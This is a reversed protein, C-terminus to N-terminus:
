GTVCVGLRGPRGPRWWLGREKGSTISVGHAALEAVVRDPVDPTTVPRGAGDLRIVLAIAKGPRRPDFHV